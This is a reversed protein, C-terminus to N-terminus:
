AKAAATRAEYALAEARGKEEDVFLMGVFGVVFFAITFLIGTRQDWRTAVYGFVLPGIAESLKWFLGWFGFFEASRSPPSFAGVLARSGSQTAGIASGALAGVVWFQDKTTSAWAGVTALIWVVLTLNIAKKAGIRDQLLGFGAAGMAAVVNIAIFFKSLEVATFALEREAYVSTFAVIVCLGANYFSFVGLFKALERLHGVEGMTERLRSFGVSLLTEGRPLEQAVGREKVFLFTPIAALFFFGAVILNTKATTGAHAPDAINEMYPACLLLCAIGGFFGLGWAYGSVKGMEEPPAIDPLFSATFNEGSSYFVKALAFLIAGTWLDGPGVLALSATFVVCGLWSVFLYKKKAGSFDALAGLLPSTVIVVGLAAAAALSFAFEGRGSPAVVKVFFVSYVVSVVVTTFSSNAFDFMAWGFIERWDLSRPPPAPAPAPTDSM